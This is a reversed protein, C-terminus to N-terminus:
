SPSETTKAINDWHLAVFLSYRQFFRAVVTAGHCAAALRTLHNLTSEEALTKHNRSNEDSWRLGFVLHCFAHRPYQWRSFFKRQPKECIQSSCSLFFMDLGTAVHSTAGLFFLFLGYIRKRFFESWGLLVPPKFIIKPANGTFM